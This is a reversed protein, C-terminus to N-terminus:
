KKTVKPQYLSRDDLAYVRSSFDGPEIGELAQISGVDYNTENKKEAM